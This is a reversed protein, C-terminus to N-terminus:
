GRGMLRRSVTQALELSRQPLARRARWLWRGESHPLIHLDGRECGEIALRAIGEADFPSKKMLREAFKAEDPAGGRMGRLINTPFFSPCLVSVGIGTGHVEGHLTESLAIVGAKTVNYPSMNPANAIGALSAVNLIHGSGRRKMPPLFVECGHIPGWLNVGMIWEWDALPITGVPGSVAVGANNVLLDVVGLHEATFRWLAEVEDRRAVDCRFVHAEAGGLLAATERAAEENVDTVVLRAKRRALQLCFARGLGSGAGTVVCCPREPLRM